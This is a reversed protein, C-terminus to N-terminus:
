ASNSPLMCLVLIYLYFLFIYIIVDTFNTDTKSFCPIDIMDVDRLNHEM